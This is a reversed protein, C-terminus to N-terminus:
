HFHHVCYIYSFSSVTDEYVALDTEKPGNGTKTSAYQDHCQRMKAEIHTIKNYVCEADLLKLCGKSKIMQAIEECVKM